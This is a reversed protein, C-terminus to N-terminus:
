SFKYSVIPLSVFSKLYILLWFSIRTHAEYSEQPVIQLRCQKSSSRFVTMIGFFYNKLKTITRLVQELRYSQFNNWPHAKKYEKLINIDFLVITTVASTLSQAGHCNPHGM